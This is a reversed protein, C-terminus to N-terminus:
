NLKEISYRHIWRHLRIVQIFLFLIFFFPFASLTHYRLNPIPFLLTSTDANSLCLLERWYLEWHLEWFGNRNGLGFGGGNFKMSKFQFLFCFGLNIINSSLFVYRPSFALWRKGKTKNEQSLNIPVISRLKWNRQRFGWCRGRDQKPFPKAGGRRRIWRKSRWDQAQKNSQGFWRPGM